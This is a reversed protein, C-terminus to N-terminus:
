TISFILEFSKDNSCNPLKPLERYHYGSENALKGVLFVYFKMAKEILNWLWVVSVLYSKIIALFKELEEGVEGTWGLLKELEKPFESMSEKYKLRDVCLVCVILQTESVSTLTGCSRLIFLILLSAEDTAM